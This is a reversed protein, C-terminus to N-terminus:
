VLSIVIREKGKGRKKGREIRVRGIEATNRVHTGACRLPKYNEISWLLSQPDEKNATHTIPMTSATLKNVREEVEALKSRDIPAEFLYDSRDKRDDLLGSSAPKCEEGFVENMAYFVVHAASHLRMIRYRREWDIKGKVTQGPSFPSNRELIHIVDGNTKQTDSVRVGSIEGTDGVQGGGQPFFCTRDLIVTNDKSSVVEADFEKIYTDQRFLLVTL